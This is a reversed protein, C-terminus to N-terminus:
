FMKEFHRPDRNRAPYPVWMSSRRRRRDLEDRGGLRLLLGLPTLVLFFVLSLFVATNVRGLVRSLALWGRHIPALAGPAAVALLLLLGGLAALGPGARRSGAVSLATGLLAFAGGVVLGFRRNETM